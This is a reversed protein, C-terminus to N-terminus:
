AAQPGAQRFQPDGHCLSVWGAPQYLIRLRGQRAFSCDRLAGVCDAHQDVRVDLIGPASRARQVGCIKSPGPSVLEYSPSDIGDAALLRLRYNRFPTAKQPTQCFSDETVADLSAAEYAIRLRIRHSVQQAIQTVSEPSEGLSGPKRNRRNQVFTARKTQRQPFIIPKPSRAWNTQFM